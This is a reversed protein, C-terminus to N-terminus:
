TADGRAPPPTALPLLLPVVLAMLRSAQEVVAMRLLDLTSYVSWDWRIWLWADVAFELLSYPIRLLPKGTVESIIQAQESEGLHEGTYYYFQGGVAPSAKLTADVVKLADAINGAYNSDIVAPTDFTPIFPFTRQYDYPDGEGGIIGSTRISM